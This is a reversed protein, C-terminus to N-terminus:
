QTPKCRVRSESNSLKRAVVNLHDQLEALERDFREPSIVGGAVLEVLVSSRTVFQSEAEEIRIPEQGLSDLRM